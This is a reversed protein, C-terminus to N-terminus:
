DEVRHMTHGCAACPRTAGRGRFRDRANCNRCIYLAYTM